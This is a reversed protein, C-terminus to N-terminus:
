RVAAWLWDMGTLPHGEALAEQYIEVQGNAIWRAALAGSHLALGAVALWSPLGAYKSREPTLVPSPAGGATALAPAVGLRMAFAIYAALALVYAAMSFYLLKQAVFYAAPM